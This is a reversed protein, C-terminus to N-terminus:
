KTKSRMKWSRTFTWKAFNYDGMEIHEMNINKNPTEAKKSKESACYPIILFPFHWHSTKTSKWYDSQSLFKSKDLICLIYM